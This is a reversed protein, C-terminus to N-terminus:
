AALERRRKYSAFDIVNTGDHAGSNALERSKQLGNKMSTLATEFDISYEIDSQEWESFDQDLDIFIDVQQGTQIEHSFALTAAYDPLVRSRFLICMDMLDSLPCKGAPRVQMEAIATLMARNEIHQQRAENM